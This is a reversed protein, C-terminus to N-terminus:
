SRRRSLDDLPMLLGKSVALRVGEIAINIIDPANGAAIETFLKDAYDSWSSVPAINDQVTVNPYIKKFREFAAAYAQAEQPNGWNYTTLNATVDKFPAAAMVAQAGMISALGTSGLLAAGAAM